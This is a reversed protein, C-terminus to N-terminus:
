QLLQLLNVTPIDAPAFQYDFMALPSVWRIEDHDRLEFAGSIHVARYSQLEITAQPYKHVHTILHDTIAAQIGFEEQLERALCARPDEGEEIKGGPFEWLGGLQRNQRRKAILITGEHEIVAATVRIM